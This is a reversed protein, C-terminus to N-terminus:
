REQTVFREERDVAIGQPEVAGPLGQQPEGVREVRGLVVDHQQQLPRHAGDAVFLIAAVEDDIRGTTRPPDPRTLDCGIEEGAHLDQRRV